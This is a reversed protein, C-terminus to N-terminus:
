LKGDFQDDGLCPIDADIILKGLISSLVTKVDGAGKTIELWLFSELSGASPERAEHKILVPTSIFFIDSDPDPLLLSVIKGSYLVFIDATFVQRAFFLIPAFKM